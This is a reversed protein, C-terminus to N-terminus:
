TEGVYRRAAKGQGALALYKGSSTRILCFLGGQAHKVSLPYVGPLAALAEAGKGLAAGIGEALVEKDAKGYNDAQYNLMKNEPMQDTYPPMLFKNTAGSDFNDPCLM